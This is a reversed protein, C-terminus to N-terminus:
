DGGANEAADQPEWGLVARTHELDRYNWRNRSVGYVIEFGVEQPALICAELFAAIDRQSCWVARERPRLPRDEATVRGIRACIVSMGHRDAFLRGLVEGWAKGVGYLGSPRLPADHGLLPWQPPVDEYRGEAIARYPEEREWGSIVAGSSGFVVRKVGAERAAEFVNYVGVVNQPLMEALGKPEGVFAALHVVTDQGAFAPAIAALDAIDARHCRVGAVASRNLATLEHRGELRRRLVGGILGSMGTILIKQM